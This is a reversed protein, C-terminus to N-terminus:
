KENDKGNNDIQTKRYFDQGWQLRVSAAGDPTQYRYLDKALRAYDLGIGNARLLQIFGRLYYAMATMDPALVVQHFRRGIRERADDDGGDAAVLQSAANGLSVGKKNMSDQRPERGQQHVAYLTLAIHIAWEEKSPNGGYGLMAEPLDSFLIGWTRPDEGPKRGVGLRLNALKGRIVGDDGALLCALCHETQRFVADAKSEAM